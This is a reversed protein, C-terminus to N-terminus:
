APQRLSIALLMPELHKKSVQAWAAKHLKLNSCFKPQFRCWRAKTIYRLLMKHAQRTTHISTHTQQQEQHQQTRIPPSASSSTATDQSEFTRINNARPRTDVYHAQSQEIDTMFQLLDSNQELPPNDSQSTDSSEPYNDWFNRCLQERYGKLVHAEGIRPVFNSPVYQGILCRLLRYRKELPRVTITLDLRDPISNLRDNDLVM